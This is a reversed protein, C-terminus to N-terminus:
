DCARPPALTKLAEAKIDALQQQVSQMQQQLMEVKSLSILVQLKNTSATGQSCSRFVGLMGRVTEEINSVSTMSLSPSVSPATDTAAPVVPPEGSSAAGTSNQAAAGQQQQQQTCQPPQTEREGAGASDSRGRGESVNAAELNDMNQEQRGALGDKEQQALEGEVLEMVGGELGQKSADVQQLMQEQGWQEAGSRQQQQQQLLGQLAQMQQELDNGLGVPAATTHGASNGGVGEYQLLDQMMSHCCLGYGAGLVQELSMALGDEM